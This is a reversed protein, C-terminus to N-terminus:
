ETMYLRYGVNESLRKRETFKRLELHPPGTLIECVNIKFEPSSPFTESTLDSSGLQRIENRIYLIKCEFSVSPLAPEERKLSHFMLDRRTVKRWSRFRGEKNLRGRVFFGTSDGAYEVILCKRVKVAQEGGLRNGNRVTKRNRM